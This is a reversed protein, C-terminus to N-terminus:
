STPMVVAIQAGMAPGLYASYTETIHNDDRWMEINDLMVGCTAGACFWPQTNLYAGGANMVAAREAAEGAENITQAVPFTCAAASSLHASLCDPVVFPPKPVPGIVLVQSGLQRLQIVMQALYSLWGNDYPSFGYVPEYHRAVGLIVLAPHEVMIRALVKSRWAECETFTRGLDPSFIPIDFPPCTAKTLNLLRWGHANAAADVAPFWMAAHSDGFLVVTRASTAAGFACNRVATELFADMCGDYFTPSNSSKAEALPPDLNAPVDEVSITGALASQVQDTSAAAQAGLPDATTTPPIRTAGPAPGPARYGTPGTHIAAVPALGRGALAPLSAAVLLCVVAGAVSLSAGALLSRRPLATLWTSTRAPTEVLLFTGAAIVGSGGAVLLNEPLNLSHGVVYPALILLPWHWLYWSYSIRGTMRMHRQGLLRVPGAEAARVGAALVLAAGAVPVLAAAGPFATTSSITLFSVVIAMLGGWGMAAAARGPIQGVAPAALALVGGVGLEWARAPLAFFAWPQDVHTLWLCLLFSAATIAGLAGGASLRSASGALRNRQYRGQYRWVLSAALLLLPWALYFQEEVGLSWYHQFPSPPSSANLYDTQHIAFRYNAVYLASSVGDKAVSPVQLPPLWHRAAVATVLVVLVSAPLLRRARRGYFAALRIRGRDQLEDWLLGTILYGSVVFFVDVGAFGGRILGVHAHYLVVGLVAVARLGEIDPRFQRSPRRTAAPRALEAQM